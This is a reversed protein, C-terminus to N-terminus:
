RHVALTVPQGGSAASKRCADLVRQTSLAMAPYRGDLDGSLVIDAFRRVMRVEQANAEGSAYEAVAHRQSHRRFNWRCNDIELVHTHETWAVEADYMPLVFDELSVYGTTGSLTATQQNATSFSSYFGATVGNDFTMEGVFESPVSRAADDDGFSALTRGTVSQPLKGEMVRLAFRICYWGLDGLCGHPEFESKARINSQTFEDGGNFSFHTQIRRLSGFSDVDSLSERLQEMRQSHDFMVGDMFQVGASQCADIMEQADDAHIAVPKECLVHKGAEAARIVWQKRIGTPLPIYVADVDDRSLLEEYSDLAAVSTPSAADGAPPVEASCESIFQEARDRSRSAVAVVRGNGSLRIAKWNKRAIAATSLFGWRCISQSM